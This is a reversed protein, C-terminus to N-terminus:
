WQPALRNLWQRYMEILNALVAIFVDQLSSRYPLGLPNASCRPAPSGGLGGSLRSAVRIRQAAKGLYLSQKLLPSTRM